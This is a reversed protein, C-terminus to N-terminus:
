HSMLHEDLAFTEIKEQSISEGKEKAKIWETLRANVPIPIQLKKGIAVVAGNIADIETAAGRRIDQYMSSNNGSTLKCAIYIQEEVDQFPLQIGQAGAVNAVEQGAATMIAVIAHKRLLEGNRVELLASLPNVAANVVLKGWIHPAANEILDTPLGAENFAASLLTLKKAAADQKTIFTRGGGAYRLFGPSVITAGQSTIGATVRQKGLIRALIDYNGLGNQLTVAIGDDKLIQKIKGAANETQASKVLVLAIDVPDIDAIRTTAHLPSYKIGGGPLAVVIGDRRLTDIQERWSGLLSIQIRSPRSLSKEIAAKEFNLCGAFLCGMAGSGIVAIHIRQSM